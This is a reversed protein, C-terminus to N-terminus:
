PQLDTVWQHMGCAGARHRPIRLGATSSSWVVAGGQPATAATSAVTATGTGGTPATRLTHGARSTQQEM